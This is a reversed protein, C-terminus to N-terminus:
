SQAHPEPSLARQFVKPDMDNWQQVIVDHDPHRRAEERASTIMAKVSIDPRPLPQEVAEAWAPDNRTQEFLDNDTVLRHREIASAICGDALVNLKTPDGALPTSIAHREPSRVYLDWVEVVVPGSAWPRFPEPFMPAATLGAYDRAGFYLLLHLRQESIPAAHKTIVAATADFAGISTTV